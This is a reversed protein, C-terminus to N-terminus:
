EHANPTPRTARFYYNATIEHRRNADPGLWAQSQRWSLAVPVGRCRYHERGDLVDFVADAVDTVTRPDAGAARMRVQVATITDTGGTDEIPYPTLCIVADPQAPMVYLVVATGTAPYPEDPAGYTGLGQADLLEALGEVLSTTYGSM